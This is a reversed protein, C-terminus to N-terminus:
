LKHINNRLSFKNLIFYASPVILISLATTVTLNFWDGPYILALRVREWFSISNNIVRTYESDGIIMLFLYSALAIIIFAILISSYIYWNKNKFYKAFCIILLSVPELLHIGSAILTPGEIGFILSKILIYAGTFIFAPFVRLLSIGILLAIIHIPHAHPIFNDFYRATLSIGLMLGMLSIEFITIKLNNKQINKTSDQMLNKM